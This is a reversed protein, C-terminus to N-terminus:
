CKQDCVDSRALNDTSVCKRSGFWVLGISGTRRGGEIGQFIAYIIKITRSSTSELTFCIAGTFILESRQDTAELITLAETHMQDDLRSRQSAPQSVQNWIEFPQHQALSLLLM